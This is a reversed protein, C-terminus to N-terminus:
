DYGDTNEAYSGIFVSVLKQCMYGWCLELVALILFQVYQTEIFQSNSKGGAGSFPKTTGRKVM